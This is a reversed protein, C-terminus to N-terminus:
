KKGNNGAETETQLPSTKGRTTKPLYGAKRAESVLRLAKKESIPRDELLEAVARTTAIRRGEEPAHRVEENYIQAVRRLRAPTAQIRENNLTRLKRQVEGPTFPLSPELLRQIFSACSELAFRQLHTFNDAVYQFQWRRPPESARTFEVVWSGKPKSPEPGLGSLRVSQVTLELEKFCFSLELLWTKDSKPEREGALAFPELQDSLLLTVNFEKRPLLLGEWWECADGVSYSPLKVGEVYCEVPPRPPKKSGM